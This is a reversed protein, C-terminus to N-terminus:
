FAAGNQLTANEDGAQDTVTTGTGEDNDGMRWWHELGSLGTLDAPVGGNYLTSALSTKDGDFVAFEDLNGDFYNTGARAMRLGTTYSSGGGAGTATSQVTLEVGDCFLKSDSINTNLLLLWHHWNGDDQASNDNWYRFWNAELYLLPKGSDYNFFFGGINYDGHDFIANVGTNSSKAWFSYTKTALTDDASTTAHDDTGDFAVSYVNEFPPAQYEGPSWSAAWSAAHTADRSTPRRQTKM